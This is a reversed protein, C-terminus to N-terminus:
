NSSFVWYKQIIFLIAAGVIVLLAMIVQHPYGLSDVFILLSILNLLYVSAYAVIYRILSSTAMGEHEFTWKRNLYFSLLVALIYLLTMALKPELGQWTLLLYMVYIIVNHFIGVVGYRFLESLTHKPIHRYIDVRDM